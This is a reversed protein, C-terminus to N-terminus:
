RVTDKVFHLFLDLCAMVNDVNPNQDYIDGPIFMYALKSIGFSPLEAAHNIWHAVRKNGIIGSFANNNALTVTPGKSPGFHYIREDLTGQEV